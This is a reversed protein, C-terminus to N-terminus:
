TTGARQHLNGGPKSSMFLPWIQDDGAWVGFMKLCIKRFTLKHDIMLQQHRSFFASRHDFFGESNYDTMLSGNAIIHIRLSM